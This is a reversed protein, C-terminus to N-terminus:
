PVTLVKYKREGKAIYFLFGDTGPIWLESFVYKEGEQDFVLHSDKPTTHIGAWVRAQVLCNASPGGIVSTVKIANNLPIRSFDYRGAPLEKDGVTFPFPVDVRLFNDVQSWGSNVAFLAIVGALVLIKTKM